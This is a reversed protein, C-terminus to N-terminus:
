GLQHLVTNLKEEVRNQRFAVAALEQEQKKYLGIFGDVHSIMEDKLAHLDDKTAMKETLREEVIDIKNNLKAIDDKTAMNKIDDKTAMERRIAAIDNKTAITDKLSTVIELIDNLSPDQSM